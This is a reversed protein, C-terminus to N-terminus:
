RDTFASGQVIQQVTTQEYIVVGMREVVAALGQVLKAPQVRACHPSFSGALAGDVVIRSDLDERSLVRFDGAQAGWQHEYKEAEHLREVQARNRAVHLLGDKHIDADIKETTAIDIVEDVASRMAKLLDVVGQHGHSAAYGDRSGALESSLWGGNRGSAGFGAFEKELIVIRLDPQERKLYYATWLGTFGGGVICVDVDRDGPLPARPAPLGIDSYWYSVGGNKLSHATDQTAHATRDTM